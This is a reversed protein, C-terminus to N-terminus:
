LAISFPERFLACLGDNEQCTQGDIRAAITVAKRLVRIKQRFEAHGAFYSYETGFTQDRRRQSNVAQLAGSLEIADNSDISLKAPRPGLEGSFDSAYVIFGAPIEASFVLEAQDGVQAGSPEIHWRWQLSPEDAAVSATALALCACVLFTRLAM